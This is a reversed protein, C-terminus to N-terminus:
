IDCDRAMVEEVAVEKRLGECTRQRGFKPKVFDVM